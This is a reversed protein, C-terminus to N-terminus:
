FTKQLRARLEEVKNKNAALESKNFPDTSALEKKALTLQQLISNRDEGGPQDGSNLNDESGYQKRLDSIQNRYHNDLAIFSALAKPDTDGLKSVVERLSDPLAEQITSQAKASVEEFKDGFLENTVKDFEADLEKERVELAEKNQGLVEMEKQMFTNWLKDAQQQSLGVEYMMEAAQTKFNDVDFDEPVGDIDSFEYKDASEPRGAASYFKDWEEQPADAAPVGAPRQGLKSQLGAFQEWLDDSSKINKAWDKEQYADPISLSNEQPASEQTPESANPEATPQQIPQEESM